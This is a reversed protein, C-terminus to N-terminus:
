TVDNANEYIAGMDNSLSGNLSRVRIFLVSYFAMALLACIGSLWFVSHYNGDTKLLTAGIAPGVALSVGQFAPLMAPFRGSPDLKGLTGLQYIDVASWVMFFLVLVIAFIQASIPGSLTFMIFAAIALSVMLPLLQGVRASLWAAIVCAVLSLLQTWTLVQTIYPKALGGDIGVLEIYTWFNSIAIYFLFVSLLCGWLWIQSVGSLSVNSNFEVLKLRAPLYPLSLGSLLLATALAVYVADMGAVSYLLPVGNIEVIGMTVQVFLLISFNRATHTSAALAAVGLAYIMGGGMGTFFRVALLMQFSDVFTALLNALMGVTIGAIALSRRNLKNVLVAVLLSAVVMGSNDSSALLGAQGDSYGSEVWAGVIAPSGNFFAIGIVALCVGAAIASAKDAPNRSPSRVAVDDM